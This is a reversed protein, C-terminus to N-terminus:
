SIFSAGIDSRNICALILVLFWNIANESELQFYKGYVTM